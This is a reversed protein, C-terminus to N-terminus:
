LFSASFSQCVPQRFFFDFSKLTGCIHCEGVRQGNKGSVAKQTEGVSNAHAYVTEMGKVGKKHAKKKFLGGVTMKIWEKIHVIQFFKTLFTMLIGTGILIILGYNWVFSNVASNIDTLTTLFSNM